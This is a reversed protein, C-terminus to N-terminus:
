ALMLDHVIHHLTRDDPSCDVHDCFYDILTLLLLHCFYSSRWRDRSSIDLSILFLFCQKDSPDPYSFLSVSSENTFHPYTLFLYLVFFLALWLPWSPPAPHYVPTNHILCWEVIKRFSSAAQTDCYCALSCTIALMPGPQSRNTALLGERHLHAWKEGLMQVSYCHHRHHHIYERYNYTKHHKIPRCVFHQPFFASWLSSQSPVQTM